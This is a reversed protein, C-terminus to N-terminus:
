VQGFLETLWTIFERALNGDVELDHAHIATGMRRPDKRAALWAYLEARVKKKESFNRDKEPIGDIYGRSLPWVRDKAPIMKVVFDELEGPSSNDPMLWIGIRPRTKIITGRPNPGSPLTFDEELLRHRVAQWRTGIDDNADILIGVAQRGPAKTHAGVVALLSEVDGIDLVDFDLELQCRERLHGVVHKDDQGEVLLVRPGAASSKPHAM